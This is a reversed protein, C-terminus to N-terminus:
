PSTFQRERDHQHRRRICDPMDSHWDILNLPPRAMGDITVLERFKDLTQQPLSSLAKCSCFGAVRSFNGFKVNM